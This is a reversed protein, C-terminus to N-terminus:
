AAYPQIKRIEKFYPSHCADWLDVAAQLNLWM